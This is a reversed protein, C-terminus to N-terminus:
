TSNSIVTNKHVPQSSQSVYYQSIRKKETLSTGTATATLRLAVTEKRTSYM